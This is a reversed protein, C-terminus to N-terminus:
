MPSYFLGNEMSGPNWEPNPEQFLQIAIPVFKNEANLYFLAMPAAM